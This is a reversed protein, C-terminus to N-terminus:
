RDSGRSGQSIQICPHPHWVWQPFVWPLEEGLQSTTTNSLIPRHARNRRDTGDVIDGDVIRGEGMMRTVAEEFALQNSLCFRRPLFGHQYPSISRKESLFVFLVKNLIRELIKCIMDGQTTQYFIIRIWISYARKYSVNNRQRSCLTWLIYLENLWSSVM